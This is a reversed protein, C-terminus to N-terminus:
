KELTVIKDALQSLVISYILTHRYQKEVASHLLDEEM